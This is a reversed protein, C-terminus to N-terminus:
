RDLHLNSLQSILKEIMHETFRVKNEIAETVQYIIKVFIDNSLPIQAKDIRLVELSLNFSRSNSRKLIVKVSWNEALLEM